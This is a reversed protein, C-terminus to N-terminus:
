KKKKKKKTKNLLYEKGKISTLCENSCFTKYGIQMSVFPLFKECVPCKPTEYINHLLRYMVEVKNNTDLFRNLLYNKIKTYKKCLVPIKIHENNYITIIDNDTM